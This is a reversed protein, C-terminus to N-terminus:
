WPYAIRWYKQPNNHLWNMSAGHIWNFKMISDTKFLIMNLTKDGKLMLIIKHEGSKIIKKVIYTIDDNIQVHDNIKIKSVLTDHMQNYQETSLSGINLWGVLYVIDPIHGIAIVNAQYASSEATDM